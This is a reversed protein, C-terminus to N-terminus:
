QLSVTFVLKDRTTDSLKRINAIIQFDKDLLEVTDVDLYGDAEPM